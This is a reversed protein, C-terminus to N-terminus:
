RNRFTLCVNFHSLAHNIINGRVPESVSQRLFPTRCVVTVSDPNLIHGSRQVTPTKLTYKAKLAQKVKM